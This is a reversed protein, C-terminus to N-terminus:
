AAKRRWGLETEEFFTRQRALDDIETLLELIDDVLEHGVLKMGFFFRLARDASSPISRDRAAEWRTIQLRRLGLVDALSAQSMDLQSRLFRVEQGRLARPSSVIEAAIAKHLGDADEIAIGRGYPTDHIAFGNQLYIYDLGSDKYHFPELRTSPKANTM